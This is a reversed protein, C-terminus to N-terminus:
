AQQKRYQSPTMGTQSRFVRCFYSTSQFGCDQSIQGITELSNQFKRKAQDIRYSLLYSVPSTHLYSRFCRAAESKSVGVSAAIEALSIQQQYHGHIFAMMKQTRIQLLHERKQTPIIPIEHINSFLTQWLQCLKNQVEMEYCISSIESYSFSLEPMETENKKSGYKQFLSFIYDLHTLIEKQWACEPNLIIYPYQRNTTIPLIYDQYIKSTIPAILEDLFVINPCQLTHALNPQSFSHLANANIFIGSGDALLFSHKGVQIAANGGNAVWFELEPHWHLPITNNSFHAPNDVYYQIPFSPSGHRTLEQMDQNLPFVGLEM